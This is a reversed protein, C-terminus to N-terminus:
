SDLLAKWYMKQSILVLVFEDVLPPSERMVCLVCSVWNEECGACDFSVALNMLVYFWCDIRWERDLVPECMYRVVVEVVRLWVFM